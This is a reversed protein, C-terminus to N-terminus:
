VNISGGTGGFPNLKVGRGGRNTTIGSSGSRMLKENINPDLPAKFNADFKKEKVFPRKIVQSIFLNTPIQIEVMGQEEDHYEMEVWLVHISKIRGETGVGPVQMYWGEEIKETSSLLLYASVMSLPAGFANGVVWLVFGGGIAVTWFNFGAINFGLTLGVLVSAIALSMFIVRLIAGRRFTTKERYANTADEIEWRKHSPKRSICEGIKLLIWGVIVGGLGISLIILSNITSARLEASAIGVFRQVEHQWM